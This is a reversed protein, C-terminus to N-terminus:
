SDFFAHQQSHHRRVAETLGHWQPRTIVFCGLINLALGLKQVSRRALVLWGLVLGALELDNITLKGTKNMRGTVLEQQIDAPWEFKWVWHQM